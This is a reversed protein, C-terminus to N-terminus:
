SEPKINTTGSRECRNIDNGSSEFGRSSSNRTLPIWQTAVKIIRRESGDEGLFDDNFVPPIHCVTTVVQGKFKVLVIIDLRGTGSRDEVNLMTASVWSVDDETSPIIVQTTMTKRLRKGNKKIEKM